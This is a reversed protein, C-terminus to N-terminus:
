SILGQFDSFPDMELIRFQGGLFFFIKTDINHIPTTKIGIKIRNCIWIEVKIGIGIQIRLPM